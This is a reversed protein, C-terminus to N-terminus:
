NATDRHLMDHGRRGRPGMLQSGERADASILDDIVGSLNQMISRDAAHRIRGTEKPSFMTLSYRASRNSLRTGRSYSIGVSGCAARRSIPMERVDGELKPSDAWAKITAIEAEPLRSANSWEGYRPDARWPPMKRTLVPERIAAAVCRRYLIPAVDRSFTLEGAVALSASIGLLVSSRAIL